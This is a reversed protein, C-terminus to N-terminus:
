FALNFDIEFEMARLEKLLEVKWDNKDVYLVGALDSPIEVGSESIIVVRERGLKGIFYGAEFVVNQRARKQSAGDSDNAVLDDGTFLCIAADVDAHREFKEIITAGANAQEMLVIPELGQKELLRSVSVRLEGDHGHVVFIRRHGDVSNAARMTTGDGASGKERMPFMGRLYKKGESTIEGIHCVEDSAYFATILGAKHLERYSSLFRDDIKPGVPDLQRLAMDADKSLIPIGWSDKIRWVKNHHEVGRPTVGTVIIVPAGWAGIADIMGAAKLEEYCRADPDDDELDVSDKGSEFALVLDDLVIDARNSIEYM